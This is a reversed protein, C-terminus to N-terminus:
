YLDHNPGVLVIHYIDKDRFGAIRGVASFRFILIPVEPTISKPISIKLQDRPIIEFGLGDKPESRIASWTLQSLRVLRSAIFSRAEKDCKSLCNKQGYPMYHFSFIPKFNDFKETPKDELVKFNKTSKSQLKKFLKDEHKGM